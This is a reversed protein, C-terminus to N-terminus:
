GLIAKRLEDRYLQLIEPLTEDYAPQLYPRAPLNREPYGLEQARGYVTTPGVQAKWTMPAIQEPGTVTISRRLNGTVLSPPEGPASPTPTGPAHSSTTLKEKAAKEIMHASKAVVSRVAANMAIAKHDLAAKAEVLGKLIVTM